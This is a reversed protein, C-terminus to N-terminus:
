IIKGCRLRTSKYSNCKRWHNISPRTYAYHMVYGDRWTFSTFRSCGECTSFTLSILQKWKSKPKENYNRM